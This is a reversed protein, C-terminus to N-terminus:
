FFILNKVIKEMEEREMRGVIRYIRNEICITASYATEGNELVEQDLYIEQKLWENNIGYELSARDSNIGLSTEKDGIEQTFHIIQDNYDFFFIVRNEELIIKSFEFHIPLYGLKMIPMNLHEEAEKYAEDLKGEAILNKSNNLIIGQNNTRIKHFYNKGGIATVGLMAVFAAALVAVLFVKKKGFRSRKEGAGDLLRVPAAPPMDASVPTVTESPRNEEQKASEEEAARALLKQCIREEAGPFDSDSITAELEDLEALLQEDSCGYAEQICKKLAEDELREEETM